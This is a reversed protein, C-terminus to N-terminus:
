SKGRAVQEVFAIAEKTTMGGSDKIEARAAAIEEDTFDVKAAAHILRMYAAHPLFHGVISGDGECVEVQENLGNLKARLQPDLIIRSM